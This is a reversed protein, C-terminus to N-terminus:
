LLILPIIGLINQHFIIGLIKESDLTKMLKTLVTGNRQGRCQM